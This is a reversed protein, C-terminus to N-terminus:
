APTCLLEEPRAERSALIKAYTQSQLIGCALETQASYTSIDLEAM